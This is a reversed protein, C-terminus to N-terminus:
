RLKGKGRYWYLMERGAWAHQPEYYRFGCAILNNVSKPNARITYTIAGWGKRRAYVMRAQILRRQLGKGRHKPTVGARSLYVVNETAVVRLCAFGVVHGTPIHEVIWTVSQDWLAPEVDRRFCERDIRKAARLHAPKRALMVRYPTAGVKVSRANSSQSM